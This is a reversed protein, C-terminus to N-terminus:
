KSPIVLQQGPRIPDRRRIGNAECLAAITVHYRKAIKGLTQGSAVVHIRQGPKAEAAPSHRSTPARAESTSPSRESPRLPGPDSCCRFGTSYDHYKPDHATTKYDCGEGNLVVDLYYGGRFTGAPHSTWEHLNGVMDYLGFSNRCRRFQGTRSVSGAVQNLRPDNMAEMGFTAVSDDRGHFRRLPSVGQDNCRGAQRDEGYPYRTPQKGKCAAVWEQDTCLRKGAARCAALAQEQSFYAQPVVGGRSRARLLEDISATQYPSHRRLTRGREDVVDVSAEYRDVCYRGFVSVMGAPCGVGRARLEIPSLLLALVTSGATLVALDARLM